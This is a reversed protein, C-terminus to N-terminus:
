SFQQFRGAHLPNACTTPLATSGFVCPYVGIQGTEPVGACSHGFAGGLISTTRAQRM